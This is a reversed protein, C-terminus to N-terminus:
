IMKPAYIKMRRPLIASKWAPVLIVEGAYPPIQALLTKLFTTKGAGNPWHHGRM